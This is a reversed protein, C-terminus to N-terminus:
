KKRAQYTKRTLELFIARTDIIVDDAAAEPKTIKSLDLQRDIMHKRDEREDEILDLIEAPVEEVAEAKILIESLRGDPLRFTLKEQPQAALSFGTGMILFLIMTLSFSAKHQRNASQRIPSNKRNPNIIYTKM